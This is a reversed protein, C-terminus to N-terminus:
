IMNPNVDINVAVKKTTQKQIESLILALMEKTRKNMKCKIIFRMRFSRNLKYITAPFAGFIIAKVDKYGGNMHGRLMEGTKKATAAAENEFESIINIM